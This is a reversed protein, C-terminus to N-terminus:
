FVASFQATQIALENAHEIVEDVKDASIGLSEWEHVAVDAGTHEAFGFDPHLKEALNLLQVLVSREAVEEFLPPHHHGMVTVIESPLDWCRALKAGVYCHTVGLTELEIELIPRNPHLLLQHHLRDSAEADVHHLAMFGIDHLLGALFIQDEPPRTARPMAQAITRMVIAIVMSHLWLDNPKFYRGEDLKSLNSMAAIGLAVSKVRTMGLLMAADAVTAVKRNLGLIPSNALGVIKASIQPDQSILSLLEQEGADSDLPLALLKQATAPMAPLSDLHELALRLNHPATPQTM